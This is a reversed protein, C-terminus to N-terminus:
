QPAEADIPATSSVGALWKAAHEALRVAEEREAPSMEAMIANPNRNLMSWLGRLCLILREAESARQKPTQPRPPPPSTRQGMQSLTAKLLSPNEWGDQGLHSVLRDVVPLMRGMASKSYGFAEALGRCTGGLARVRVMLGVLCWFQFAATLKQESSYEQGHQAKFQRRREALNALGEIEDATMELDAQAMM